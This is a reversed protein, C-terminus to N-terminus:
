ASRDAELCRSLFEQLAPTLQDDTPDGIRANVDGHSFTPLDVITVDAGAARAAAAFADMFAQRTATGRSVLFLDPVPADGVHRLPSLEEWVAPDTGFASRYVGALQGGEAVVGAIDFGETDLPASCAITSPELDQAALYVPDVTIAAAIGAGASHGLLAIRGPDIGLGPSEDVLWALAAAVDENHAPAMVREDASVSDDTLRYNVSAVAWGAENWLRVKPDINNRKDGTRWAGGHVWVVLPVPECGADAPQYLDLRQLPDGDDIYSVDLQDARTACATASTTTADGAPATSSSESSETACAGLGVVAVLLLATRADM